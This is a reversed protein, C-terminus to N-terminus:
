GGRIHAIVDALVEPDDDFGGHTTVQALNGPVAAHSMRARAAPSLEDRTSEFSEELGLIPTTVGREFSRSVLYLLSRGYGLIARCTPDHEEAAKKLHLQRYRAVAGTELHPAIREVFLDARAAPAMFSVSEFRLGADVLRDLLFAHVISGASHGILHLRIRAEDVVERGAEYLLVGGAEDHGSILDANEKMQGWVRSGPGALLGEIRRNLFRQIQDRLGATPREIGFADALRDSIENKLTSFLDTEWMFFIPFVGADYLAPIWKAATSAAAKEGVLGGHAYIAVDIPGGAILKRKKKEFAPLSVNWIADLDDKTTRFRGSRSLRGDNSMNVILPSLENNRLEETPALTVYGARDTRLTRAGAVARHQETVVGLQVVWCDMANDLWDEYRIRAFGDEGWSRGWSNLLFFGEEDYGVIVFAHGPDDDGGRQIPITWDSRKKKKLDFGADWGEHCVASGYLVGVENLAVHMDTVSRTDVRYYAGLPRNAADQWWDPGKRPTAPKDYGEWLSEACVGHRFWGKLAARVSSGTDEDQPADIADYRRAMSYMMFPSVPTEDGRGAEELLYDVVTALAFGTCAGTDGQDRDPIWRKEFSFLYSPPCTSVEPQYPRDRVDLRDPVVTLKRRRTM